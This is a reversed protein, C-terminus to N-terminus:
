RDYRALIYILSEGTAYTLKDVREVEYGRELEEQLVDLGTIMNYRDISVEVATREMM